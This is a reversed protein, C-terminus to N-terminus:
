IQFEQCIIELVNEPTCDKGNLKSSILSPTITKGNYIICRSFSIIKEANQHKSFKKKEMNPKIIYDIVFKALEITFGAITVIALITEMGDLPKSKMKTNQNFYEEIKSQLEIDNELYEFAISYM